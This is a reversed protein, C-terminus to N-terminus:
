NALEYEKILTEASIGLTKNIKRIMSLTLRRKKNLIESAKSKGGIIKALDKNRLNKQEMKYKLVEIPDPEPFIPETETEYNEILMVLLEAENFTSDGNKSDFIEELRKLAKLYDDENKIITWSMIKYKTPILGTM